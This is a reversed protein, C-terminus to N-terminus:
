RDSGEVVEPGIFAFKKSLINLNRRFPVDDDIYTIRNNQSTHVPAIHTVHGGMRNRATEEEDHAGPYLAM